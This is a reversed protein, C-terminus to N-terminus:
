IEDDIEKRLTEENAWFLVPNLIFNNRECVFRKVKTIRRMKTWEYMEIVIPWCTWWREACRRMGSYNTEDWPWLCTMRYQEARASQFESLRSINALNRFNIRGCNRKNNRRGEEVFLNFRMEEVGSTKEVQLWEKTEVVQVSIGPISRAIYGNM